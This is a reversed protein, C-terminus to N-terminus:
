TSRARHGDGTDVVTSTRPPAMIALRGLAWNPAELLLEDTRLILEPRALEPGGIWVQCRQGPALTRYPMM